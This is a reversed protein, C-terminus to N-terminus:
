GLRFKHTKSRLTRHQYNSRCHHRTLIRVAFQSRSSLNFAVGFLRKRTFQKHGAHEGNGKKESPHSLM